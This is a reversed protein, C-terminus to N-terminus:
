PLGSNDLMSNAPFIESVAFCNSCGWTFGAGQCHRPLATPSHSSKKSVPLSCVSDTLKVCWNCRLAERAANFQCISLIKKNAPLGKAVMKVAQGSNSVSECPFALAFPLRCKSISLELRT